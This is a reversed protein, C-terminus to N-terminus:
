QDLQDLLHQCAAVAYTLHARLHLAVQERNSTFRDDDFLRELREVGRRFEWGATQATDPLPARKPRAPEASKGNAKALLGSRSLERGNATAREAEDLVRQEAEGSTPGLDRLQRAEGLRRRDVGLDALREPANDPTRVNSTRDGGPTEISGDAQGAEVIDALRIEARLKVATAHNVAAEGLKVQRAMVRAVEAERIVQNADSATVVESLLRNAQEVMSNHQEIRALDIGM